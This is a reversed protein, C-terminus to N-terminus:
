PPQFESILRSACNFESSSVRAPQLSVTDECLASYSLFSEPSMEKIKKKDAGCPM